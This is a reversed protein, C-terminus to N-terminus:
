NITTVFIGHIDFADLLRGGYANRDCQAYGARYIWGTVLTDRRGAQQPGMRADVGDIAHANQLIDLKILPSALLWVWPRPLRVAKDMVARSMMVTGITGVRARM